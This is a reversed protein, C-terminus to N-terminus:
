HVLLVSGFVTVFEAQPVWMGLCVGIILGLIIKAILPTKAYGGIIKKM